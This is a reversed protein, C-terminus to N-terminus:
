FLSSADEQLESVASFADEVKPKGSFAEGDKLFQLHNLGFSVGANGANNYAYANVHARAYCGAYFKSEELIEVKHQDVVGPQKESKFRIFIAGAILGDPLIGDKEKEAQDRFPSRLNKPWKKRDDGFKKFCAEEAAHKMATFDTGLAFLAEVSFEQKKSLTNLIPKFVCPYSVRFMPTIVATSM